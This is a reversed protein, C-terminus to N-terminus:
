SEDFVIGSALAMKEIESLQRNVASIEKKEDPSLLKDVLKPAPIDSQKLPIETPRPTIDIANNEKAKTIYSKNFNLITINTQQNKTADIIQVGDNKKRARREARNSAMAVQLMFKPDRNFKMTQLLNALAEDELTDWGEDMAIQQDISANADEAYKKRFEASAKIAVLQESSLLLVEAIQHDLLGKVSLAAARMRTNVDVTELIAITKEEDSM